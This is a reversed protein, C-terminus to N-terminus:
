YAATLRGNPSMFYEAECKAFVTIQQAGDLNAATTTLELTNPVSNKATNLGVFSLRNDSFTRLDTCIAAGSVEAETDVDAGTKTYRTKSIQAESHSWGYKAFSKHQEAYARGIDLTANALNVDIGSEPYLIGGIRFSFRDVGSLTNNILGMRNALAIDGATRMTAILSLLSSSRDNIQVVQQGTSETINNIYTKFSDSTFSIGRQAVLSRYQNMVSEDLVRYVPCYLRANTVNYSLTPAGANPTYFATLLDQLRLRIEFQAAGQPLAKGHHNFLFGSHKLPLVMNRADLSTLSQGLPNMGILGATAGLVEGGGSQAARVQMDSLSSNWQMEIANWHSYNELRELEVGQSEIRLSDIICGADGQMVLARDVAGTGGTSANTLTFYLYSKNTDLFGDAQVSIRIENAGDPAYTGAPADFRRLSLSAPVADTQTLAYRMSAPLAVRSAAADIQGQNSM